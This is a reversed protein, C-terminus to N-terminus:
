RATPKTAPQNLRRLETYNTPPRGFRAEFQLMMETTPQPLSQGPIATEAVTPTASIEGAPSPAAPLISVEAAPAASAPPASTAPTPERSCATLFVAVAIPLARAGTRATAAVGRLTLSDM